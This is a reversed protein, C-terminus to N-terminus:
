ATYVGTLLGDLVYHRMSCIPNLSTKTINGNAISPIALVAGGVDVRAQSGVNNIM